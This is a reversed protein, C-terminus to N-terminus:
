KSSDINYPVIGNPWLDTVGTNFGAKTEPRLGSRVHERGLIDGQFLDERFLGNIQGASTVKEM